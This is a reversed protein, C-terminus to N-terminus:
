KNWADVIHMVCKQWSETCFWNLKTFLMMQTCSVAASNNANQAVRFKHFKNGNFKYVLYIESNYSYSQPFM